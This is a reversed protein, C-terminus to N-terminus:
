KTENSSSGLSDKGYHDNGLKRMNEKIENLVDEINEVKMMIHWALVNTSTLFFFLLIIQMLTM